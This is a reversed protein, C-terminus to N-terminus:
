QAWVAVHRTDITEFGARTLKVSGERRVGFFPLRRSQEGSLESRSSQLEDSSGRSQLTFGNILRRARLTISAAQYRDLIEAREIGLENPAADSGTM